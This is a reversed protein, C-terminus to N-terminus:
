LAEIGNDNFAEISQAAVLLVKDKKPMWIMATCSPLASGTYILMRPNNSRAEHLAARAARWDNHMTM